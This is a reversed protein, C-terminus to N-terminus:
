FSIISTYPPPPFYNCKILRVNLKWRYNTTCNSFSFVFWTFFHFKENPMFLYIPVPFVYLGGLLLHRDRLANLPFLLSQNARFWFLTDSHLSIDVWPSNNWHALVIFFFKETHQDLAFRVDDDDWQFNVQERWWIASFIASNANFLM